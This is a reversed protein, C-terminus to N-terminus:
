FSLEVCAGLGPGKVEARWLSLTSVPLPNRHRTPVHGAGNHSASAEAEPVGTTRLPTTSQLNHGRFHLRAVQSPVADGVAFVGDNGLIKVAEIYGVAIRQQQNSGLDVIRHVQARREPGARMELFLVVGRAPIWRDTRRGLFHDIFCLKFITRNVASSVGIPTNPCAAGGEAGGARGDGAM